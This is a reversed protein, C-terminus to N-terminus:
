YEGKGCGVGGMAGRLQQAQQARQQSQAQADVQQQVQQRVQETRPGLMENANTTKFMLFATTAQVGDVGGVMGSGVTSGLAWYYGKNRLQDNAKEIAKQLRQQRQGAWYVKCCMGVIDCCPIIWCIAPLPDCTDNLIKQVEEAFPELEQLRMKGQLQQPLM